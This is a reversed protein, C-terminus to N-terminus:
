HDILGALLTQDCQSAIVRYAIPWTLVTPNPLPCGLHNRLFQIYASGLALLFPGSKKNGIEFYM